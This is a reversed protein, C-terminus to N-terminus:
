IKVEKILQEIPTNLIKNGIKEYEIQKNYDKNTQAITTLANTLGWKTYGDQAFQLLLSEIQEKPIQYEKVINNIALIPQKIETSATNNIQDIWLQFKDKTFCHTIMDSIQSYLHEDDLSLTKDSWNITQHEQSKGLHVKSLENDSILGNNCKLISIFQTVKFRGLGVESNTVIIGGNVIDGVHQKTPNPNIYAKLDPSTIKIYLHTDTLRADNINIQIDQKEQIQKLNQLTCTMVDYNDIPRYRKSLLARANGHLTRLMVTEKDQILTNINHTLLTPHEILLKDYFNMPINTKTAIQQHCTNTIDFTNTEPSETNTNKLKLIIKNTGIDYITEINETPTIYDIKTPTIYDIKTQKDYGLKNLLDLLKETQENM